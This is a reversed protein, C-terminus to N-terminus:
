TAEEGDKRKRRYTWRVADLFGNAEANAGNQEYLDLDRKVIAREHAPCAKPLRLLDSVCRLVIHRLRESETM